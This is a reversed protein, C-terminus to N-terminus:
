RPLPDLSITAPREPTAAQAIRKLRIWYGQLDQAWGKATMEGGTLCRRNAGNREWNGVRHRAFTGSSRFYHGCEMCRCRDTGGKLLPDHPVHPVGSM